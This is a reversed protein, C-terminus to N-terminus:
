QRVEWATKKTRSVISLYSSGTLIEKNHMHLRSEALCIVMNLQYISLIDRSIIFNSSVKAFHRRNGRRSEERCSQSM